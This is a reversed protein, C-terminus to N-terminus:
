AVEQGVPLGPERERTVAHTEVVGMSEHVGKAKQIYRNGMYYGVIVLGWSLFLTAQGILSRFFVAYEPTTARLFGVVLFPLAAVLRMEWVPQGLEATVRARFHVQERVLDLLGGLAESAQTGQQDRVVVMQAIAELIPDRRLEIIPQLAREVSRGAQLGAAVKRWDEKVIEPGYEIVKEIAAQVTGGEKFGEILQAAVDGQAEQYAQRQKDRRDHLYAIFFYGGAFMGFLAGLPANSLVFGAIGGLLGLFVCSRILEGATIQLGAQQIKRQLSEILGYEEQTYEGRDRLKVTRRKILAIWIALVGLAGVAALIVNV